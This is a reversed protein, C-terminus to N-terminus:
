LSRRIQSIIRNESSWKAGEILREDESRRYKKERTGVGVWEKGDPDTYTATVTVSQGVQLSTRSYEYTTNSDDFPRDTIDVGSQSTSISILMEILEKQPWVDSKGTRVSNHTYVGSEGRMAKLSLPRKDPFLEGYNYDFPINYKSMWGQIISKVNAIQTDNYKQYYARGKYTTTEGFVNVPQGVSEPPVVQDYANYYQGDSRLFLYGYSQLEIGLSSKNLNQFEVGLARFQSKPIGLHNAWSEDAFVQEADGLNNTIYHTAVRDTRKNWDEVTKEPSVTAGATHHLYIQNKPTPGVYYISGLPYGSTITAGDPPAAPVGNEPLPAYSPSPDPALANAETFPADPPLTPKPIAATKTTWENANVVHDCTKIQLELTDADYTHPLVNNDLDFHEYLRIGSIGEIDMTFSFPLFYPSNIENSEVMKGSLLEQFTQNSTKLTKINIEIWKLGDLVSIFLGNYKGEQNITDKWLDKLKTEPEVDAPTSDGPNPFIRDTLGQNWKALGTGNANFGNSRNGSSAAIVTMMDQDIQSQIDINKVISGEIKNKVGFTNFVCLETDESTPPDESKWRPPTEDIIKVTNNEFETTIKFNNMGGRSSNIGSFLSQLFTLMSLSGDEANILNNDGLISDIFEINIFVDSLKGMHGKDSLFKPAAKKFIKNLTTDPLDFGADTLNHNQYVTFCCLPDASFQGPLNVLYNNDDDLNHFDFDFFFYPTEDKDYLLFYKQLIALLVPLKIFVQVPNLNESDTQMGTFGVIGNKIVLDKTEAEKSSKFSELKYDQIGFTVPDNIGLSSNNASTLENSGATTIQDYIEVLFNSLLNEKVNAQLPDETSEGADQKKNEVPQSINMNLSEIVNGHGVIQTQCNYSGDKPDFAWNFNSVTGFIGEYNGARSIREQEILGLINSHRSGDKNEFDEATIGTTNLTFDLANTIFTDYTQLKGDNDLYTSWGFELLLNYGPRMYLVDMLALQTRSFCKMNITAQAFAGDSKYLLSADILGPLPVYGKEDLGGWGYAGKYYQNSTNLGQYTILENNEGIGVVGGQLIFNKAAVDKSFNNLNINSKLLNQVVQSESDSSIDVTSALRIWPTKSNQYKLDDFNYDKYGLSEQRAQVQKTVWSRFPKGFLNGM